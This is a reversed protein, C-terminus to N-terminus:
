PKLRPNKAQPGKAAPADDLARTQAEIPSSADIERQYPVGYIYIDVLYRKPPVMVQAARQM